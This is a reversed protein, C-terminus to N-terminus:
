FRWFHWMVLKVNKLNNQVFDKRFYFYNLNYLIFSNKEQFIEDFIFSYKRPFKRSFTVYCCCCSCICVVAVVAIKQLLLKITKAADALWISWMKLILFNKWCCSATTNIDAWLNLSSQNVKKLGAELAHKRDRM